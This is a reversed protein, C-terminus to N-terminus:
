SYVNGWNCSTYLYTCLLPRSQILNGTYFILSTNRMLVSFKIAFYIGLILSILSAIEVFTRKYVRQILFVGAVSRFCYRIIWLYATFLFFLSLLIDLTLIYQKDKRFNIKSQSLILGFILKVICLFTLLYVVLSRHSFSTFM